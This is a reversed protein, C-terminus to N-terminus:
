KLIVMRKTASFQNSQIHYFYVGSAVQEGYQNTGDWYAARDRVTYSGAERRGLEITRVLEGAINFIKVNIDSAKSLKFPIWTEPNFPNPYNQLLEPKDPIAAYAEPNEKSVILKFERIQDIPEFVYSSSSRLNIREETETDILMVTQYESPVASSDFRIRLPEFSTTAAKLKWIIEDAPAQMDQLYSTGKEDVLSLKVRGGPMLPLDIVDFRNVNDTDVVGAFKVADTIGNSEALFKVSWSSATEASPAASPQPPVVGKTPATPDILLVADEYAYLWYGGWPDLTGPWDKWVKDNSPIGVGTWETIKDASPDKVTQPVTPDASAFSYAPTEGNFWYIVNQVVRNASAENINQVVEGGDVIGNRNIDRAASITTDDWSRSFNFPNGIENWGRKVPVQAKATVNVTNGTVSLANDPNTTGVWAAVGPAFSIDSDYDGSDSNFEWALWDVNAEGFPALLEPADVHTDEASVKSNIPVSLMRYASIETESPFVPLSGAPLEVTAGKVTVNRMNDRKALERWAWVDAVLNWQLSQEQVAGQADKAWLYYSLGKNNVDVAPVEVSANYVNLKRSASEEEDKQLTMPMYKAIEGGVQYYLRAETVADKDTITATIPLAEGANADTVIPADHDINPAYITPAPNGITKVLTPAVADIENGKTDKVAGAELKVYLHVWNNVVAKQSDTLHFRVEHNDGFDVLAYGPKTVKVNDGTLTFGTRSDEPDLESDASPLLIFKSAFTNLPDTLCEECTNPKGLNEDFDLTLVGGAYDSLAADDHKSVLSPKKTDPILEIYVANDKNIAQCGEGSIKHAANGNTIGLYLPAALGNVAEHADYSLYIDITDTENNKVVSGAPGTPAPTLLDVHPKDDAKDKNYIRFSNANVHATPDVDMLEDFKITLKKDSANYSVSVVKAADDQDGADTDKRWTGLAQRNACLVGVKVNDNAGSDKVAGEQLEIWLQNKGDGFYSLGAIVNGAADKIEHPAGWRTIKKANEDSLNIEVTKSLGKAKVVDGEGLQVKHNADYGTNQIWIVVKSLDLNASDMHEDFALRLKHVLQLGNDANEDDDIGHFYSSAGANFQPMRTDKATFTASVTTVSNSLGFTNKVAGQELKVSFSDSNVGWSSIVAVKYDNDIKIVIPNVEVMSTIPDKDGSTVTAYTGNADKLPFSGGLIIKELNIEDKDIDEDFTLTLEGDQILVGDANLSMHKYSASQFVPPTTDIFVSEFSLAVGNQQSLDLISNNLLKLQPNAGNVLVEHPTDVDADGDTNVNNIRIINGEFDIPGAAGLQWQKAGPTSLVYMKSLDVVGTGTTSKMSEDLIIVLQRIPNDSDPGVPIYKVRVVEPPITDYAYSTLAETVLPIANNALDKFAGNELTVSIDGPLTKNWGSINDRHADTLRFTFTSTEAPQGALKEGIGQTLNFNQAPDATLAIKVKDSRPQNVDGDAVVDADYVVRIKEDFQLYLDKSEHEYNVVLLQPPLDNTQVVIKERKHNVNNYLDKVAGEEITIVIDRDAPAAKVNAVNKALIDKHDSTLQFKVRRSDAPQNELNVLKDEGLHFLEVYKVENDKKFKYLVRIKESVTSARKLQESFELEIYGKDLQSSGTGDKVTYYGTGPASENMLPPTVYVDKTAAVFPNLSVDKVGANEITLTAGNGKLVDNHDLVNAQGYIVTLEVTTYVQAKITAGTLALPGGAASQVKWKALDVTDSPIAESFDVQLKHTNYNYRIDRVNGALTPNTADAIYTMVQRGTDAIKNIFRYDWLADAGIRVRVNASGVTYQLHADQEITLRIYVTNGVVNGSGGAGFVVEDAPDISKLLTAGSLNLSNAGDHKELYIKSLDIDGYTKGDTGLHAVRIATNPWAAGAPGDDLEIKIVKTGKNYEASRFTPKTKDILAYNNPNPTRVEDIENVGDDNVDVPDGDLVAVGNVHTIKLDVINSLVTHTESDSNIDLVIIFTGNVPNTPLYLKTERGIFSSVSLRVKTADDYIAVQGIDLPDAGTYAITVEELPATANDLVMQLLPVRDTGAKIAGKTSAYGGTPYTEPPVYHQAPDYASLQKVELFSAFSSNATLMLVALTFAFMTLTLGLKKGLKSKNSM